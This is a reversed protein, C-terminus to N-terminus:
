KRVTFLRCYQGASIPGDEDTAALEPVDTYSYKKGCLFLSVDEIEGATDLIDEVVNRDMSNVYIEEDDKVAYGGNEAIYIIDDAVPEFKRKLSMLQRGSAAAFLIDKEKLKRIVEFIEPNIQATGEPLLTGDIDSAVLKIM